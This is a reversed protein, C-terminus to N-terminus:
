HLYIMVKLMQKQQELERSCRMEKRSIIGCPLDNSLGNVDRDSASFIMYSIHKCNTFTKEICTHM